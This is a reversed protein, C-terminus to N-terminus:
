ILIMTYKVNIPTSGIASIQSVVESNFRVNSDTPLEMPIMVIPVGSQFVIQAAEPDDWVNAEASPNINGGGHISGGMVVLRELHPKVEPFTKLLLAANTLAGLM